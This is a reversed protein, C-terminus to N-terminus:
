HTVVLEEFSMEENGKKGHRTKAVRVIKKVFVATAMVRACPRACIVLSISFMHHGLQEAPLPLHTEVIILSGYQPDTNV